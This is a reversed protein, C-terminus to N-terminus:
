HYLSHNQIYKLVSAPLFFDVPKGLAIRERIETASIDILRSTLKRWRLGPIDPVEMDSGPRALIGFEMWEALQEIKRWRSLGPLQDAGMVWLWRVAPYQERLTMMTDVTYSPGSRAIEDELVSFRSESRIAERLMEVRDRGSAVPGNAKHPNRGAPVFFLHEAGVAELVDQALLMHGLHPPDFTGGM